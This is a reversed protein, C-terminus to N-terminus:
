QQEEKTEILINLSADDCFLFCIGVFIMFWGQLMFAFRWSLYKELLSVVLAGLIYGIMVGIIAFSHLIAMWKTNSKKPSFENIWVPGYIVCFAQTFGLLFRM